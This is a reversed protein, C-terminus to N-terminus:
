SETHTLSWTTAGFALTALKPSAMKSGNTVRATAAPAVLRTLSPVVTSMTGYRLATTVAFITEVSSASLPPRTIRPIPAPQSAASDAMRPTGNASRPAMVSSCRRAIRSSHVLASGTNAPVYVCNLPSLNSGLGIWCGCGGM